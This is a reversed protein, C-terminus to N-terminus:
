RNPQTLSLYRMRLEYLTTEIIDAEDKTLNGKTKDKLMDLVDIIYGAQELNKEKKNTLPNPADGLFILAQMGLGIIFHGFDTSLQSDPIEEKPAEKDKKEDNLSPKEKADEKEEDKKQWGEQIRKNLESGFEDSM